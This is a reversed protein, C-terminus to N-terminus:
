PPECDEYEQWDEWYKAELRRRGSLRSEMARGALAGWAMTRRALSQPQADAWARHEDAKPARLLMWIM